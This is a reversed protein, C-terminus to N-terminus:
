LISNKAKALENEINFSTQTQDVEKISVDKKQSTERHSDDKEQSTSPTDSQIKKPPNGSTNKSRFNYQNHM